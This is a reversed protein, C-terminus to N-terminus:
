KFWDLCLLCVCLFFITLSFLSVIAFQLKICKIYFTVSRFFFVVTCLAFAFLDFITHETRFFAKRYACVFHFLYFILSFFLVQGKTPYWKKKRYSYNICLKKKAEKLHFLLISLIAFFITSSFHLTPPQILTFLQYSFRFDLRFHHKSKKIDYHKRGHKPKHLERSLFLLFHTAICM